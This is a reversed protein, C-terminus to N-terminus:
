KIPPTSNPLGWGSKVGLFTIRGKKRLAQLRADLFRFAQKGTGSDAELQQCLKAVTSTNLIEGALTHGSKIATLIAIDLTTYDTKM